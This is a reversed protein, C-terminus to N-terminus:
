RRSAPLTMRLDQMQGYDVRANRCAKEDGHMCQANHRDYDRKLRHLREERHRLDRGRREDAESQSTTMADVGHSAVRVPATAIGAATRAVCGSLLSATLAILALRSSHLM